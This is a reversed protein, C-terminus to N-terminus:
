NEVDKQFSKKTRILRGITCLQSNIQLTAKKSAEYNIEFGVSDNHIYLNIIVGKEGFGSTDGVTLVPKTGIYDLISDIRFAESSAIFM